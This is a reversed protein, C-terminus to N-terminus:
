LISVVASRCLATVHDYIEDLETMTFNDLSYGVNELADDVMEVVDIHEPSTGYLKVTAIALGRLDIRLSNLLESQTSM